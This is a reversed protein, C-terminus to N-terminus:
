PAQLGYASSAAAALHLQRRERRAELFYTNAEIVKLRLQEPEGGPTNPAKNFDGIESLARPRRRGPSSPPMPADAVASGSPM